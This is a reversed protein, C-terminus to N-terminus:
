RRSSRGCPARIATWPRARTRAQVQTGGSIVAIDPAASAQGEGQLTISRQTPTAAPQALAPAALAALGALSLAMAHLAQRKSPLPAPRSQSM